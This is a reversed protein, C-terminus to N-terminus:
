FGKEKLGKVLKVYHTTIDFRGIKSRRLDIIDAHSVGRRGTKKIEYFDQGWKSSSVSSLGDIRDKCKLRMICYPITMIIDSFPSSMASYYSQYYVNKKDKVEKNFKKCYATTTQYVGAGIDPNKSGIFKSYLNMGFCFIEYIPKPLNYLFDSFESGRHPTSITTLSAVRHDMHLKSILYRADLGGKSHAIINVKKYKTTKVIESIKDKIEEAAREINTTSDNYGYFVTAGNRILTNPIRGWYNSKSHDRWCLGHIFLIPYKTQCSYNKVKVLDSSINIEYEYRDTAYKILYVAPVFNLIPICGFLLCFIFITKDLDKTCFLMRMIASLFVIYTIALSIGLNISLVILYENTVGIFLLLLLLVIFYFAQLGISLMHYIALNRGGVLIDLKKSEINDIRLYRNINIIIRWWLYTSLLFIIVTFLNLQYYFILFFNPYYSLIFIITLKNIINVNKRVCLFFLKAILISYLISIVVM